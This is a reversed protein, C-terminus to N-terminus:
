KIGVNFKLLLAMIIILFGFGGLPLSFNSYINGILADDDKAFKLFFIIVIMSIGLTMFGAFPSYFFFQISTILFMLVLIIFMKLSKSLKKM